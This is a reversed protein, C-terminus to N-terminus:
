EVLSSRTSPQQLQEAAAAVADEVESLLSMGVGISHGAVGSAGQRVFRATRSNRTHLPVASRENAAAASDVATGDVEEGQRAVAGAVEEVQRYGMGAKLPTDGARHAGSPGEEGALSYEVVTDVGEVEVAGEVATKGAADEAAGADVAVAGVCDCHEDCGVGVGGALLAGANQHALDYGVYDFDVGGEGAGVETGPAAAAAALSPIHNPDLVPVSRGALVHVHHPVAPHSGCAM